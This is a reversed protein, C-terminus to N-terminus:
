YKPGWGPMLPTSGVVFFCLVMIGVFAKEDKLVRLYKDEREFLSDFALALKSRWSDAQTLILNVKEM